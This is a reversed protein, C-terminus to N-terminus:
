TRVAQGEKREKQMAKVVGSSHLKIDGCESADVNSGIGDPRQALNANM